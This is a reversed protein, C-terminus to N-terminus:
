RAAKARSLGPGRLRSGDLGRSSLSGSPVLREIRAAALSLRWLSGTRAWLRQLTWGPVVVSRQAANGCSAASTSSNVDRGPSAAVRHLGSDIM